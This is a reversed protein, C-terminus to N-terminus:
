HHHHLSHGTGSLSWSGTCQVSSSCVAVPICACLLSSVWCVRTLHFYNLIFVRNEIKYQLLTFKCTSGTSILDVCKRKWAELYHGTVTYRHILSMCALIKIHHIFLKIILEIQQLNQKCQSNYPEHSSSVPHADSWPLYVTPAWKM